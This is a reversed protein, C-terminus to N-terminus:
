PWTVWESGSVVERQPLSHRYPRGLLRDLPASPFFEPPWSPFPSPSYPKVDWSGACVNLMTRALSFPSCSIATARFAAPIAVAQQCGWGCGNERSRIQWAALEGPLQSTLGAGVRKRHPATNKGAAAPRASRGSRDRACARRGTWKVPADGGSVTAM